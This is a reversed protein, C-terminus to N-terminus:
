KELLIAKKLNTEAEDITGSEAYTIGIESNIDVIATKDDIQEYFRLSKKFYNLALDYEEKGRSCAAIIEFLHAEMNNDGIERAISIANNLLDISIDLDGRFAAKTAKGHISKIKSSKDEM